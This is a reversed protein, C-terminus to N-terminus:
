GHFAQSNKQSKEKDRQKQQGGRQGGHIPVKFVLFQVVARYDEGIILAAFLIQREGLLQASLGDGRQTGVSKGAAALKAADGNGERDNLDDFVREVGPVVAIREEAALVQLGDVDRGVMRRQGLDVANQEAFGFLLKEGVGCGLFAGAVVHRLADGGNLVLCEAAVVLKPADGKGVANEGDAAIRKVVAAMQQLNRHGFSIRRQGGDIAHQEAGLVPMQDAVRGTQLLGVVGDRIARHADAFPRKVLAVRQLADDKGVAHGFDAFFREIEARRQFIEFHGVADRFDAAARELVAFREAFRRERVASFFMAMGLLAVRPPPAVQTTWYM